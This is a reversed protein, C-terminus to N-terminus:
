DIATGWLTEGQFKAAAFPKGFRMCPFTPAFAAVVATIVFVPAPGRELWATFRSTSHSSRHILIQYRQECDPLPTRQSSWGNGGHL